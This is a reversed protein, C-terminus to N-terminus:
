QYKGTQINCLYSKFDYKHEEAKGSILIELVRLRRLFLTSSGCYKLDLRKTKANM